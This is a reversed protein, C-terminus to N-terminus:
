SWGTKFGMSELKNLFYIFIPWSVLIGGLQFIFLAMKLPLRYMWRKEEWRSGFLATLQPSVDSCIQLSWIVCFFVVIPWLFIVFFTVQLFLIALSFAASYPPIFLWLCCILESGKQSISMLGALAFYTLLSIGILGAGALCGVAGAVRVMQSNSALFFFSVTLGLAGFVFAWFEHFVYQNALDTPKM